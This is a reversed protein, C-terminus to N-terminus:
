SVKGRLNNGAFGGDSPLGIRREYDLVNLDCRGLRALNTDVNETLPRTCTHM